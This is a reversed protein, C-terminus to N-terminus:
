LHDGDLIRKSLRPSVTDTYQDAGCLPCQYARMGASAGIPAIEAVMDMARRCRPCIPSEQLEDKM